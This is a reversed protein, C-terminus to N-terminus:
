MGGKKVLKKYARKSMVIGNNSAKRRGTYESCVGNPMVKITKVEKGVSVTEITGYHNHYLEIADNAATSVGTYAVCGAAVATAASLVYNGVKKLKTKIEM